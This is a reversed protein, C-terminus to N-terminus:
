VILGFGALLERTPGFSFTGPGPFYSDNGAIFSFPRYGIEFYLLEHAVRM